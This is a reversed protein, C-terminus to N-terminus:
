SFSSTTFLKSYPFSITIYKLEIEYRIHIQVCFNKFLHKSNKKKINALLPENLM